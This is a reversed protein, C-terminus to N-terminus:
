AVRQQQGGSMELPRKEELGELGVQALLEAVRRRREAAPVRKLGMVYEANEAASLVPILNYAQFVFGIRDRRLDAQENPSLTGLDRGDVEVTGSTPTDLAGILNLLTTKGSGSPGAIAMFEGKEVVLDVGRLAETVVKGKALYSKKVGAVRVVSM